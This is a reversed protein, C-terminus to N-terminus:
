LTTTKVIMATTKIQRSRASPSPQSCCIQDTGICDFRGTTENNVVAGEKIDRGSADRSRYWIEVFDGCVRQAGTGFCDMSSIRELVRSSPDIRKAHEYMDACSAAPFMLEGYGHCNPQTIEGSEDGSPQLWQDLFAQAELLTDQESTDCGGM